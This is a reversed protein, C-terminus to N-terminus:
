SCSDRLLDVQVVGPLTHARTPLACAQRFRWLLLDADLVKSKRSFTRGYDLRFDPIMGALVVVDAERLAVGAAAM